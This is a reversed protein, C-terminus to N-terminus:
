VVSKRDEGGKPGLSKRGQDIASEQTKHKTTKGGPGTTKWGKGTGSPGVVTRRPSPM